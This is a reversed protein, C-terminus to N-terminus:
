VDPILIVLTKLSLAVLQPLQARIRRFHEGAHAIIAVREGAADQADVYDIIAGATVLATDSDNSALTESVTIIASGAFDAVEV